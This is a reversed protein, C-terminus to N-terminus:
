GTIPTKTVTLAYAFATGCVLPTTRGGYALTLRTRLRRHVGDTVIHFGADDNVEHVATRKGVRHAKGTVLALKGDVKAGAHVRGRDLFPRTTQHSGGIGEDLVTVQVTNGYRDNEYVSTWFSRTGITGTCELVIGRQHETTAGPDVRQSVSTAPRASSPTAPAGEAPLAASVGILATAAVAALSGTTLTHSRM